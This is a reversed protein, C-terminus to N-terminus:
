RPPFTWWIISGGDAATAVASGDPSWRVCNISSEHGTLAFLFRPAEADGDVVWVRAEAHPADAGGRRGRLLAGSIFVFVIIM